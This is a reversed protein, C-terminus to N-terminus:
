VVYVNSGLSVCSCQDKFIVVVVVVFVLILCVFLVVVVFGWLEQFIVSITPIPHSPPSLSAAISTTSPRAM